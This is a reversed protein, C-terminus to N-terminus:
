RKLFKSAGLLLMNKNLIRIIYTGSVLNSVNQNITKSNPQDIYSKSLQKGNLNYMEISVPENSIEKLEINLTYSCPNPYIKIEVSKNKIFEVISLVKSCPRISDFLMREYDNNYIPNSLDNTHNAIWNGARDSAM